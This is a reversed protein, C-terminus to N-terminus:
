ISRAGRCRPYAACGWFYGGANRGRRALRKVMRGGCTPCAIASATSRSSAAPKPTNRLPAAPTYRPPTPPLPRPSIPPTVTPVALGLFQLDARAQEREADARSIAPDPARSRSLFNAGAYQLDTAGKSLAMRLQAAQSACSQRIRQVEQLEAPSPQARFVFRGAVKDRWQLLPRASAEGFGPVAMIRNHVIDAATDIGYSALAAEKTPGIGRINARSLPFTELFAHLQSDRRTAEHEDIRRQEDQPLRQLKDKAEQLSRRLELMEVVGVKRQWDKVANSMAMEAQRFRSSFKETNTAGDGFARTFGFWAVPVYVFWLAPVGLLLGVAAAISIFGVVRYESRERKCAKAEESPETKPSPLPPNLTAPDPIRVAEIAAWIATLNFGAAGFDAVQPRTGLDFPPLFLLIGIKQEMRCWICQSAASPYFHMASEGCKSLAGELADLTKVWQLATPRSIANPAFSAEFAASVFPPFDDLQCAGPPPKMEVIRQKSYVFRHEAIAKEIPMERPGAYRGMFPHRGMFLLQFIVVALGFADHAPARVVKELRQGQLEPPTYEAVGVRCVHEPGFQFSDADILAALAQESILIGSHNIDGIVAGLEHVNAVAKAINAAARITFRYDAKPFHIKRSGPAYLDHLSTHGKFLRMTFGVFVGKSDRVIAAPFAILSSRNALGAAIMAAIKAERKPDPKYYIKIAFGEDDALAFVEGEGGKGLLKGLRVPRGNVYFQARGSM